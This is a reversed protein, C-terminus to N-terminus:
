SVSNPFPKADNASATLGILSKLTTSFALFAARIRMSNALLIASVSSKSVFM